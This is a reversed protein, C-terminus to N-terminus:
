HARRTSSAWEGAGGLEELIEYGTVKPLAGRRAALVPPESEVARAQAASERSPDLGSVGGLLLESFVRGVLAAQDPFRDLYEKPDPVWGRHVRYEVETVLLEGLLAARLPEPGQDLFDEIRPRIGARCAAEFRDCIEDVREADALSLRDLVSSSLAAPTGNM